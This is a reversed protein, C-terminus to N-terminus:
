SLRAREVVRWDRDALAVEFVDKALDIRVVPLATANM